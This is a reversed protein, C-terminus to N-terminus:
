AQVCRFMEPGDCDQLNGADVEVQMERCHEAIAANGEEVSNFQDPWGADDWGFAGDVEIKFKAQPM